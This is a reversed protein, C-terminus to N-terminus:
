SQIITRLWVAIADQIGSYVAEQSTGGGRPVAFSHDGGEIPLITARAMGKVFPQLEDPTGFADRTGQVFLTPVRISALHKTRLQEPRGPPHLPYGLMVVGAALKGDGALVQSAIRGGMSKGGVVLSPGQLQRLERSAGIVDRYCAELKPAPDPAGRRREMYPFNFTVVDSGRAALGRAFAVMFRHRQDAGAGHALVLTVGLPRGEGGAPYHMGSVHDGSALAFRLSAPERANTM